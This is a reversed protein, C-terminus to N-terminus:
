IAMALQSRAQRDAEIREMAMAVYEESIDCGFWRRGLRDAAVATTGSGMFPDFILDGKISGCKIFYEAIRVDKATPHNINRPNDTDKKSTNASNVMFWNKGLGKGKVKRAKGNSIMLIPVWCDILINHPRSQAFNKTEIFIDFDFGIEHLEYLKNKPMWIFAISGIKSVRLFAERMKHLLDFFDVDDWDAKGIGYPPDTVVLDVCGDPMGRMVDLCDGVVITNTEM